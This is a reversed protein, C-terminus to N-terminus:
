LSVRGKSLILVLSVARAHIQYMGLDIGPTIKGKWKYLTQDAAINRALVYVLYFIPQWHQPNYDVKSKIFM